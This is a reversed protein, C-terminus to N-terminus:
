TQDRGVERVVVAIGLGIGLVAGVVTFAPSANLKGDLWLGGFVGIVMIIAMQTGLPLYRLYAGLGESGGRRGGEEPDSGGKM